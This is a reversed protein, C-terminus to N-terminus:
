SSRVRSVPARPFLSLIPMLQTSNKMASRPDPGDIHINHGGHALLSHVSPPRGVSRELTATAAVVPDM